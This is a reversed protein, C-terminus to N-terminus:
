RGMTGDSTPTGAIGTVTPLCVAGMASVGTADDRYPLDGAVDTLRRRNVIARVASAM